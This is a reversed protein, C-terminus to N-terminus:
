PSKQLSEGLYKWVMRTVYGELLKDPSYQDDPKPLPQFNDMQGIHHRIIRYIETQIRESLGESAGVPIFFSVVDTSAANSGAGSIWMAVPSRGNEIMDESGTSIKKTVHLVGSSCTGISTAIQELIPEVLAAAAPGTGVEIVVPIGDGAQENWPRVSKKLQVIARAARRRQEEDAKSSDLVREWCTLAREPHDTSLLKALDMLYAAGHKAEDLYDELQPARNVHEPLVVAIPAQEHGATIPSLADGLGQATPNSQSAELRVKVLEADSPPTMFDRNRTGLWWTLVVVLLCSTICIPLSLRRM